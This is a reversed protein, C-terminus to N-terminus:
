ANETEESPYSKHKAALRTFVEFLDADQYKPLTEEPIPGM